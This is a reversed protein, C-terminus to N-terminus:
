ERETFPDADFAGLAKGHKDVPHSIRNFKPNQKAAKRFAGLLMSESVSFVGKAEPMARLTRLMLVEAAPLMIIDSMRYLPPPLCWYYVDVSRDYLHQESPDIICISKTIQWPRVCFVRNTRQPGYYTPAFTFPGTGGTIRYVGPESDFVVYEDTPDVGSASLSASAFSSAGHGLVLDSGDFLNARSPQHFTYYRYGWENLNAFPRDKGLFEVGNATDWVIDIGLLDSPLRLGSTDVGSASFDMSAPQGCRLDAWSLEKALETYQFNLVRWIRAQLDPQSHANLVDFIQGVIQGAQIM